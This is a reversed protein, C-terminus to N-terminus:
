KAFRSINMLIGVVVSTSLFSSGGFSVFPLTMGTIPFLGTAVGINILVQMAFV